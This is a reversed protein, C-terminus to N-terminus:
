ELRLRQIPIALKNFTVIRYAKVRRLTRTDLAAAAAPTLLAEGPKALDEGLKSAVNVELGFVDGELEIVDGYGIGYSFRFREGEPRARNVRGLTADLAVVAACATRADEFTLLLSDGEVKVVTGGHKRVVPRLAKVVHDFGMLFHLIGDRLTRTTFDATDTFVIARKRTLAPWSKCDLSARASPTTRARKRLYALLRRTRPGSHSFLSM